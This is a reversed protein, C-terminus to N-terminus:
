GRPAIPVRLIEGPDASPPLRDSRTPADLRAVTPPPPAAVAEARVATLSRASCHCQPCLPPCGDKCDADECAEDCVTRMVAETLGTAHALAFALALIRLLPM